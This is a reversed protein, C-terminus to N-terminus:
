TVRAPIMAFIVEHVTVVLGEVDTQVVHRIIANVLVGKSVSGEWVNSGMQVNRIVAVDLLNNKAHAM